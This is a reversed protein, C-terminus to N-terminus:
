SPNAKKFKKLKMPIHVDWIAMHLHWASLSAQLLAPEMELLSTMSTIWKEHILNKEQQAKFTQDMVDLRIQEMCYLAEMLHGILEASSDAGQGTRREPGTRGKMYARLAVLLEPSMSALRKDLLPLVPISDDESKHDDIM